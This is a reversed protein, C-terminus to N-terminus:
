ATTSDSAATTETTEVTEAVTTDASDAAEVETSDPVEDFRDAGVYPDTRRRARDHM